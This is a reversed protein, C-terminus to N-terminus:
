MVSIALTCKFFYIKFSTLYVSRNLVKCSIGNSKKKQEKKDNKFIIKKRQYIKQKQTTNMCSSAASCVFMCQKHINEKNYWYANIENQTKMVNNKKKKSKNYGEVNTYILRREVVNITMMGRHWKRQVLFFFLLAVGGPVLVVLLIFRKCEDTPSHRYRNVWSSYLKGDM